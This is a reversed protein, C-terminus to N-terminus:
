LLNQIWGDGIDFALLRDDLIREDLYNIIDSVKDMCRHNEPYYIGLMLLTCANNDGIEPNLEGSYYGIIKLEIMCYENDSAMLHKFSSFKAKLNRMVNDADDALCIYRSEMYSKGPIDLLYQNCSFDVLREIESQILASNRKKPPNDKTHWEKGDFVSILNQDRDLLVLDESISKALMYALRLCNDDGDTNLKLEVLGCETDDYFRHESSLNGLYFGSVKKEIKDLYSLLYPNSESKIKDFIFGINDLLNDVWWGHCLYYVTITTKSDEKKGDIKIALEKLRNLRSELDNEDM